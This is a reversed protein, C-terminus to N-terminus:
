EYLKLLIILFYLVAWVFIACYLRANRRITEPSSNNYMECIEKTYSNFTKSFLFGKDSFDTIKKDIWNLDLKQWITYLYNSINPAFLVYSAVGYQEGDYILPAGM